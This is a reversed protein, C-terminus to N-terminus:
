RLDNRIEILSMLSKHLRTQTEVTFEDSGWCEGIVIESLSRIADAVSARAQNLKEDATTVVGM